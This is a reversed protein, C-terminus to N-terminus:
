EIDGSPWNINPAGTNGRPASVPTRPNTTRTTTGRDSRIQQQIADLQRMADIYGQAQQATQEEINPEPPAPPLANTLQGTAPRNNASREIQGSPSIPNNEFGPLIPQTNGLSGAVQARTLDLPSRIQVYARTGIPVVVKEPYRRDLRDQIKAAQQRILSAASNAASESVQGDNNSSDSNSNQNAYRDTVAQTWAAIFENVYPTLQVRLPQPIYYGRVGSALDSSDKLFASIPLERGDPYLITDVNVSVRDEFNSAAASGLLRTGFPIQVKNQFIVNEAVGMIILDEQNVTQITTLIYVPFFFGRPLFNKTDFGTLRRAAPASATAKRDRKADYITLAQSNIEVQQQEDTVVTAPAGTTGDSSTDAQSSTSVVAKKKLSAIKADAEAQAKAVAEAKERDTREKNERLVELTNQITDLNDPESVKSDKVEGGPTQGFAFDRVSTASSAVGPTDKATSDKHDEAAEAVPKVNSPNVPLRSVNTQAGPIKPADANQRVNWLVVGAIMAACIILYVGAGLRPEGTKPDKTRFFGM